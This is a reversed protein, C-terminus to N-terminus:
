QLWWSVRVIFINIELAAKGLGQLIIKKFTKM